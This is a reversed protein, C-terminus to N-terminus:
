QRADATKAPVTVRLQLEPRRHSAIKTDEPRPDADQPGEEATVPATQTWRAATISASSHASRTHDIDLREEPPREPQHGNM